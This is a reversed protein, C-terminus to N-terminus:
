KKHDREISNLLEENEKRSLIEGEEKPPGEDKRITPCDCKINLYINVETEGLYSTRVLEKSKKNRKDEIFLFIQIYVFHRNKKVHRWSYFRIPRDEKRNVYTKKIVVQLCCAYKEHLLGVIRDIEQELALTNEALSDKPLMKELLSILEELAQNLGRPGFLRIM